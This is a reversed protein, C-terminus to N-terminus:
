YEDVLVANTLTSNNYAFNSLIYPGGGDGGVTFAGHTITINNHVDTDSYHCALKMTYCYYRSRKNLSSCTYTYYEDCYGKITM